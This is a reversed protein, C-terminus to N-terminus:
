RHRQSMPEPAADGVKDRVLQLAPKPGVIPPEAEIRATEAM